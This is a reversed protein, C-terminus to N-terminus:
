ASPRRVSRDPRAIVIRASNRGDRRSISAHGARIRSWSPPSKGGCVTDSMKRRVRRRKRSSRRFNGRRSRRGWSPADSGDGLRAAPLLHVGFKYMKKMIPSLPHCGIPPNKLPRNRRALRSATSCRKAIKRARDWMDPERVVDASTTAPSPSSCAYHRHKNQNVCAAVTTSLFRLIHPKMVVQAVAIQGACPKAAPRSISRKRRAVERIQRRSKEDLASADAPRAQQNDALESRGQPSARAAKASRAAEGASSPPSGHGEHRPRSRAPTV